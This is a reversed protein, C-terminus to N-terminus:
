NCKRVIITAALGGLLLILAVKGYLVSRRLHACTSVLIVEHFYAFVLRNQSSKMEKIGPFESVNVVM